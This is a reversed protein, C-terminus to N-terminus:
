KGFSPINGPSDTGLEQVVVDTDKPEKIRLRAAAFVNMWEGISHVNDPYVIGLISISAALETNYNGEHTRVRFKEGLVSAIAIKTTTKGVSGVVAVLKVDHKKLYRKAYHELIKQIFFKLM